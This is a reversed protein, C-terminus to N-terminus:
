GLLVSEAVNGEELSILSKLVEDETLGCFDCCTDNVTSNYAM